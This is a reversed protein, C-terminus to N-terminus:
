VSIGLGANTMLSPTCVRGKVRSCSLWFGTSSCTFVSFPYPYGGASLADSRICPTPWTEEKM